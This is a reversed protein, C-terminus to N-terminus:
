RPKYKLPCINLARNNIGRWKQLNGVSIREMLYEEKEYIATDKEFPPDIETELVPKQCPMVQGVFFEESWQEDKIRVEFSEGKPLAILRSILPLAPEGVYFLSGPEDFLIRHYTVGGITTPEDYYGHIEVKAKYENENSELTTITVCKGGCGNDISVWLPKGKIECHCLLIIIIFLDIKRM